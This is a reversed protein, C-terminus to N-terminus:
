WSQGPEYLENGKGKLRVIWNMREGAQSLIDLCRRVMLIAAQDGSVKIGMLKHKEIDKRVEVPLKIKIIYDILKDNVKKMKANSGTFYEKAYRDAIKVLDNSLLENKTDGEDPNFKHKNRLSMVNDYLKNDYDDKVADFEAYLETEDPLVEENTVDILQKNGSLAADLIKQANKEMDEALKSSEETTMNSYQTMYDPQKKNIESNLKQLGDNFKDVSAPTVESPWVPMKSYYNQWQQANLTIMFGILLLMIKKM